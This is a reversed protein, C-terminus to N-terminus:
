VCAWAGRWLLEARHEEFDRPEVVARAAARLLPSVTNTYTSRAGCVPQWREDAWRCRSPALPHHALLSAGANLLSATKNISVLTSPHRRGITASLWPDSPERRFARTRVGCVSFHKRERQAPVAASTTEATVAPMAPATETTVAAAAGGGTVAGQRQTRHRTGRSRKHTGDPRAGPQSGLARIARAKSTRQKPTM